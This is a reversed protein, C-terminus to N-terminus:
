YLAVFNTHELMLENFFAKFLKTETIFPHLTNHFTYVCSM